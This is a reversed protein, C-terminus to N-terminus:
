ASGDHGLRPWILFISLLFIVYKTTIRHRNAHSALQAPLRATELSAVESSTDTASVGDENNQLCKHRNALLSGEGPVAPGGSWLSRFSYPNYAM